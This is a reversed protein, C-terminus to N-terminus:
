GTLASQKRRVAILGETDLNISFGVGALNPQRAAM